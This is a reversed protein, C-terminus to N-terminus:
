NEKLVWCLANIKGQYIGGDKNREEISLRQTDRELRGIENIIESKRKMKEVECNELIDAVM